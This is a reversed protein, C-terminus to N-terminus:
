LILYTLLIHTFEQQAAKCPLTVHAIIAGLNSVSGAVDYTLM